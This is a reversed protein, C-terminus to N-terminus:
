SSNVPECPFGGGKAARPGPRNPLSLSTVASLARSASLCCTERRWLAFGSASCLCEPTSSEVDRCHSPRSTALPFRLHMSCLQWYLMTWQLLAASWERERECVRVRARARPPVCVRVCWDLIIVSWGKIGFYHHAAKVCMFQACRGLAFGSICLKSTNQLLTCSCWSFNTHNQWLSFWASGPLRSNVILKADYILIANDRSYIAFNAYAHGWTCSLRWISGTYRSPLPALHGCIPLPRRWQTKM